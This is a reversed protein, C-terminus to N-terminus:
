YKITSINLRIFIPFLLFFYSFKASGHKRLNLGRNIFGLGISSTNKEVGIQFPPM